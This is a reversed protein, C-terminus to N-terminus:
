ALRQLLQAHLYTAEALFEPLGAVVALATGEDCTHSTKSRMDRYKKWAPWDGLLLHQANGSRVLDQFPMSAYLDPSPSTLELYRKLTKHALEYTFEFRQVLGDRIQTDSPDQLYRALGEDLRTIAKEFPNLIMAHM